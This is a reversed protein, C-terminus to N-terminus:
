CDVGKEAVVVANCPSMCKEDIYVDGRARLALWYAWREYKNLKEGILRPFFGNSLDTDGKCCPMLILYKASSCRLYMDVIRTALNRCPHVGIFIDFKAYEDFDAACIDKITYEFRKVKKWKRSRPRSDFARAHIIPLLHVALVSTLANGACFDGLTFSMPAAKSTIRRLIRIVAMSETIEKQAKPGLPSVVNLVDGACKLSLFESVYSQSNREKHGDSQM